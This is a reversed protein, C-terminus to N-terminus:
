DGSTGKPVYRYLGCDSIKQLPKGNSQFVNVFKGSAFDFEQLQYKPPAPQGAFDIPYQGLTFSSGGKDPSKCISKGSKDVGGVTFTIGKGTIRTINYTINEHGRRCSGQFTTREVRKKGDLIIDKKFSASAKSGCGPHITGGGTTDAAVSAPAAAQCVLIGVLAVIVAFRVRAAGVLSAVPFQTKDPM